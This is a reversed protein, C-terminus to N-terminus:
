EYVAKTGCDECYVPFHENLGNAVSTLRRGCHGCFYDDFGWMNPKTTVKVERVNASMDAIDSKTDTIDPKTDAAGLTAAIVQAPTLPGALMPFARGGDDDFIYQESGAYFLTTKSVDFDISKWKVDHEDLTRRLEKSVDADDQRTQTADNDTM